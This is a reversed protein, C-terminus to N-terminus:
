KRALVKVEKALGLRFRPFLRATPYFGREPTEAVEIIEGIPIGAPMSQSLGGTLVLDGVAAEARERLELILVRPSEGTVFGTPEGDRAVVADVKPGSVTILVVQCRNPEVTEVIGALGRPDVVAMDPQVGQDSGVNLVMRSGSSFIGIIQAPIGEFEPSLDFGGDRLYANLRRESIEAADIRSQAEALRRRLEQNEELLRPGNGLAGVSSATWSLVSQVWAAPPLLVSRVAGSM